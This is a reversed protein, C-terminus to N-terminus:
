RGEMVEVEMAVEQNTVRLLPVGVKVVAMVVMVVEAGVEGDEKGDVGLEKCVAGTVVVTGGGEM